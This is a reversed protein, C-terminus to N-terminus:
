WMILMLRKCYCLVGHMRKYNMTTQFLIKNIIKIKTRSSKNQVIQSKQVWILGWNCIIKLLSSSNLALPSSHFDWIVHPATQFNRQFMWKGYKKRILYGTRQIELCYIIIGLKIKRRKRDKEKSLLSLFDDFEMM